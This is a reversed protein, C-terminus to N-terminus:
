LRIRPCDQACTPCLPQVDGHQARRSRDSGRYELIQRDGVLDRADEGEIEVAVARLGSRLCVAARLRGTAAGVSAAPERILERPDVHQDVRTM